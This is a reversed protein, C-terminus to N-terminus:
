TGACGAQMAPQTVDIQGDPDAKAANAAQEECTIGEASEDGLQTESQEGGEPEEGAEAGQDRRFLFLEFEM